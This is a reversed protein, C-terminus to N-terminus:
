SNVNRYDFLLRIRKHHLVRVSYKLYDISLLKYFVYLITIFVYRILYQTNFNYLQISLEFTHLDIIMTTKTKFYSMNCRFTQFTIM